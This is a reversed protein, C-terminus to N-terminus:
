SSLFYIVSTSYMVLFLINLTLGSYAYDKDDLEPIRPISRISCVLGCVLMLPVISLYPVLFQLSTFDKKVALIVSGAIAAAVFPLLFGLVALNNTKKMVHSFIARTEPRAFPFFLHETHSEGAKRM